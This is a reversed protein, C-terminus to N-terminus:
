RQLSQNSLSMQKEAGPHKSLYVSFDELTSISKFKCELRIEQLMQIDCLIRKGKSQQWMTQTMKHTGNLKEAKHNLVM